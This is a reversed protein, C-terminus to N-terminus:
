SKEARVDNLAQQFLASRKVMPNPYNWRDTGNYELVSTNFLMKQGVEDKTVNKSLCVKALLLYHEEPIFREFGFQQQNIAYVVDNALIKAHQRTAATQCASRMMQMLQRVHGGSAKALELLHDRSEFVADVDVRGEVVGAIADLGAQIYDLDCESRVLNYINVMPMIHPDGFTNAINKESCLVSIPVTYILTCDLEQLQAAYDFFLHDGVTPPVRDLNDFIVLFGKPYKDKIKKYGDRLLLNIDAKLRSIDLQMKQRILLKRKDAGRIQALLKVLLKAIFPAHPGLSAEAEVSVSSEVSSETEQIVEQFWLEFNKLLKPDFKLKMERLAFEIHKIVVLYLDTYEADNIDIEENAELYIVRYDQEWRSQIRKLETSKGCGRHGTFLVTGFSGPEQFDLVTNVGEIAETKRVSALDVYYRLNEGSLEELSCVQFAKKLTTARSDSVAMM